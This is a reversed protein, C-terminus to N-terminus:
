GSRGGAKLRVRDYDVTRDYLLRRGPRYQPSFVNRTANNYLSTTGALWMLAQGLNDLMMPRAAATKVASVKEPWRRAYEDSFWVLLPVQNEHYLMPWSKEPNHDREMFDRFDYVEEGHDSLMVVVAARDRCLDVIRSLVYDNYRASNDYSAITHRRADDLWPARLPVSDATFREWQPEHPYRQDYSTHQGMLHFVVLERTANGRRGAYNEVLQVDYAFTSDNTATYMKAALAPDYLLSNLSFTWISNALFDRQNDWMAVDWGVSRMLAPWLPREYWYEGDAVSNLSLMDKVSSSTLNYTSVADTMVVLRGSDREAAMRPSTDLPYGYLSSHHKNYSEGIVLVVTLSDATCEAQGPATAKISLAIANATEKKQFHLVVLAQHLHTVVDNSCKDSEAIELEYLSSYPTVIKSGVWLGRYFLFVLLVVVAVRRWTRAELWATVAKRKWELVLTGALTLLWFLVAKVTGPATLWASFFETTEGGNTEAALTLMQSTYLTNFNNLLFLSTFWLGFLLVYLVVKVARRVRPWRGLALVAAALLWGVIAAIGVSGHLFEPIWEPLRHMLVVYRYVNQFSLPVLTVVTTLFMATERTVPKTLWGVAKLLIDKLRKIM